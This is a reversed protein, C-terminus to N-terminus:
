KKDYVLSKIASAFTDKSFEKSRKMAKKSLENQLAKDKSLGVTLSKLQELSDWLYGNEKDIVIEKQGGKNIVVPVCGSAMAEVTSIGFHESNKPDEEQYGMAHWYMTSEAYLNILSQQPENVHIFIPYKDALKKLEQIYDNDGEAAAGVLHFSWGALSKEDILEKFAKIMVKQKKVETHGVFRGVTLIQKKKPLIKLNEIDVPPYIVKGPTSLNKEVYKQTFVSNYIVFKWSSLKLKEIATHVALHDFPVQIHLCNNKALSYFISGDSNYFLWDYQKTFLTKSILSDTAGIPAAIFNIKSIDLGHLTIIKTKMEELDFSQLHKDLLVDVVHDKSLIEGITLIYKEGGGLTDLYPTYLAIKM